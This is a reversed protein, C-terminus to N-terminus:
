LRDFCGRLKARTNVTISSEFTFSRKMVMRDSFMRIGNSGTRSFHIFTCIACKFSDLFSIKSTM